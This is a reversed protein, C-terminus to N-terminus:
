KSYLWGVDIGDSCAAQAQVPTIPLLTPAGSGIRIEEIGAGQTDAGTRAIMNICNETSLDEFVIELQTVRSVVQVGGGWAHTLSTGTVMDAPVNGSEIAFSELDEGATGYTSQMAFANGMQTAITTLDTYAKNLRQSSLADMFLLTGSVIAVAGVAIVMLTEALTLGAQKDAENMAKHRKLLFNRIM